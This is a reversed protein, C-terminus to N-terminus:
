YRTHGGRAEICAHVRRRASFILRIIVRDPIRQWEERLARALEQRNGPVVARQRIQRGLHDWLHEIPSLDPSRAPWPLVNVNNRQLFERTIRATHPRANDQQFLTRNNHQQLFPLLVPRLIQDIYRQANLNGDVVVLDTKGQGSIGGWVMVSGGGFPVVTQICCRRFREGRRRYVRTRGDNKYLQFRSEDSFIVRRWNRAQWQRVNRAWQLRQRRHQRTLHVGRNPRYARIGHQRLRRAATRRSIAHGLGTTASETVTLFRNRLHLIRLHRDENATTVRPRGSRPMDVTRGTQRYRRMLRTITIRACGLTTAVHAHTAGMQVMGVARWREEPSLRAM